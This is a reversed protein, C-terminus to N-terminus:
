TGTSSGRRMPPKWPRPSRCLSRSHRKLRFRVKSIRAALTEGEVLEMAIAHTSGERELGHIGAINPHNLSALVEAERQFRAWGRLTKRM